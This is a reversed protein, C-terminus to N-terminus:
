SNCVVRSPCREVREDDVSSRSKTFCVEDLGYAVVGEGVGLCPPHNVDGAFFEGNFEGVGDLAITGTVEGIELPAHIYQDNVIDLEKGSFLFGLIIEEMREILQM